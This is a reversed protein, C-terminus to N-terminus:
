GENAGEAVRLVGLIVYDSGDPARLREGGASAPNYLGAILLYDGPALDAPIQLAAREILEEGAPLASFPVYGDMPATDLLALPPGEPSLLQVFWRLDYANQGDLLYSIEGPIIQGPQAQAPVRARLLNIQSTGEGILPVNLPTFVGDELEAPTAYRLLRYDDYWQDDAKYAQDALWRELLNDPDNPALGGTVFWIRKAQGVLSGMVQQAEPYELSNPAYGYVPLGARCAGGMWNMPIQYAYPAVTVVVDGNSAHECIEDLIARYGRAEEGYYPTQSVAGLWTLILVFPLIAALWRLPASVTPTGHGDAARWWLVGIVALTALVAGGIVV